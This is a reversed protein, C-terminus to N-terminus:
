AAVKPTETKRVPKKVWILEKGDFAFSRMTYVQVGAPVSSTDANAPVMVAFRNKTVTGDNTQETRKLEDLLVPSVEKAFTVLIRVCESHGINRRKLIAITDYGSELNRQEMSWGDYSSYVAKIEKAVFEHMIDSSIGM